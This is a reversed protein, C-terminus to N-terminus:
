KILSWFRSTQIQPAHHCWPACCKCLCRRWLLVNVITNKEGYAGWLSVGSMIVSFTHWMADFAFIFQLGTYQIKDVSSVPYQLCIRMVKQCFCKNFSSATNFRVAAADCVRLLRNWLTQNSILNFQMKNQYTTLCKCAIALPRQYPKRHM